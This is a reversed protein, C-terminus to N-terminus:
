VIAKLDQATENLQQIGIKTQAIGSTTQNGAQNLTNMAEVVQEIARAQHQASLSIQQANLVIDNIANLSTQQNGLIVEEIAKAVNTFAAATEQSLNIGTDATKTGEETVMVTSKIATQIGIILSNIKETSKKSEDALKRIESAVVGFGKGHEGARVAEVAANLALMNTQNALDSVLNTISGIQETQESLRTIQQAIAGVKEKLVSMGDLTQDVIKIGDEALNLVQRAGASSSEALELVQRAASASSFAQEATTKSSAGLENMSATTQNVSAAQQSIIREQEEVTSAMQSASSTITTATQNLTKAISSSILLAAALASVVCLITGFFIMWSLWDIARRARDTSATLQQDQAQNFEVSLERFRDVFDKGEERRIIQVAEEINGEQALNLPGQSWQTWRQQLQIMEQLRETQEEDLLLYIDDIEEVARQFTDEGSDYENILEQTRFIMYGRFASVMRAFGLSMAESTAKTMQNEEVQTFVASVQGISSFSIGGLLMFLVVPISYGMLMKSQIKKFDFLM